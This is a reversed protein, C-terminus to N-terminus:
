FDPFLILLHSLGGLEFMPVELIPLSSTFGVQSLCNDCRLLQLRCLWLSLFRHFEVQPLLCWVHILKIKVILFIHTLNSPTPPDPPLLIVPGVVKKVM